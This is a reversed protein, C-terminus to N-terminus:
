STTSHMTDCAPTTSGATMMLLHRTQPVHVEANFGTVHGCHGHKVVSSRSRVKHPRMTQGTHTAEGSLVLVKLETAGCRPGAM